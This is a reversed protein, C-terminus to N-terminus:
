REFETVCHRRASRRLIELLASEVGDPDSDACPSGTADYGFRAAWAWLAKAPHDFAVAGGVKYPLAEYPLAALAQCVEARLPDTWQTRTGRGGSPVAALRQQLLWADYVRELECAPKYADDVRLDCAGEGAMAATSLSSEGIRAWDQTGEVCLAASRLPRVSGAGAGEALARVIRDGLPLEDLANLTRAMTELAASGTLGRGLCVFGPGARSGAWPEVDADTRAATEGAPTAAGSQRGLGATAPQVLDSLAEGPSVGQALLGLVWPGELAQGDGTRVFAGVPGRVWLAQAGLGVGSSVVGAGLLRGRVDTVVCALASVGVPGSRGM